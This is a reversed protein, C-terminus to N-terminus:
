GPQSRMLWTTTRHMRRNLLFEGIRGPVVEDIDVLMWDAAGMAAARAAQAIDTTARGQNARAEFFAEGPRLSKATSDM